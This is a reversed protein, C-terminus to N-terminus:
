CSSSIQSVQKEKEYGEINPVTIVPRSDEFCLSVNKSSFYAGSKTHIKQMCYHGGPFEDPFEVALQQVGLREFVDRVIAYRHTEVYELSIPMLDEGARDEVYVKDGVQFM